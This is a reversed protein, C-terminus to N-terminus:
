PNVGVNIMPAAFLLPFYGVYQSYEPAPAPLRRLPRAATTPQWGMLLDLVRAMLPGAETRVEAGSRSAVNRVVIIVGWQQEIRQASGGGADGGIVDGDYIVYASPTRLKAEEIKSYDTWGSVHLLEPMQTTLRAIILAENALYNSM